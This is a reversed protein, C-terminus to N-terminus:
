KVFIKVFWGLVSLKSENAKIFVDTSSAVDELAKIQVALEAKTSTSTTRQEAKKLREIHNQTTVISSRLEGLNKYNPGFLFVKVKSESNLEDMDAKVQASTSAQEQAVLRVDAGIGGDRGAISLLNKVVISVASKQDDGQNQNVVKVSSTASQSNYDREGSEMKVTGTASASTKTGVEVDTKSDVGVSLASVNVSFALIFVPIISLLYFRKINNKM